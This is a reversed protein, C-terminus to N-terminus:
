RAGKGFLLVKATYVLIGVDFAWSMHKVYYLDYELKEEADELSSGYHFKVQAWGTVGPKVSHREDYFPIVKRLQEVFFPREPRPGVFSMEGRLVNWLQPLEDLRTRRLLRGLRTARPDEGQSTWAPGGAEADERMTRLKLLTFPRGRQGVRQQRYLVPGRSDLRILLALLALLPATLMLLATSATVDVTRKALEFVPSRDFGESFVLWSPRLSNLPIRGTLHELATAVDTVRVGSTRLRLLEEVPMRGRVENMAVVILTARQRGALPELEDVTGVVAPNVLVRGVEEAEGLFGLVEYGVAKRKLFQRAIDKASQGTGVILVREALLDHGWVTRALMRFGAIAVFAFVLYLVFVVRGVRLVPMAVFLLALLLAGIALARFVRLVLDVRGVIATEEFLDAYHVAGLLILTATLARLWLNPFAFLPEDFYATWAALAAVFALNLLVLEALVSWAQDWSAQGYLARRNM